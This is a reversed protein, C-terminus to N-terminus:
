HDAAGDTEDTSVEPVTLPQHLFLRRDTTVQGSTRLAKVEMYVGMDVFGMKIYQNYSVNRSASVRLVVQGYRAPDVLKVRERILVRGLGQRRYEELVGLEALYMTRELPVLGTLQRAVDAKYQLPIAIGFGVVRSGVTALLTINGPTGTLKRYVGDAEAPSFREFYPAGGFITQYAGIFSPRWRSADSVSTVRIIRVEGVRMLEM